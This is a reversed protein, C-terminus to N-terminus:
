DGVVHHSTGAYIRAHRQWYFQPCDCYLRYDTVSYQHTASYVVLPISVLWGFLLTTFSLVFTLGIRGWILEKVPMQFYMSDGWDGRFIIGTIWKYYQVYAPEGLGYRQKLKAM